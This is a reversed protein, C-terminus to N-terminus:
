KEASLEWTLHPLVSNFLRHHFNRLRKEASFFKSRIYKQVGFAIRNVRFRGVFGYRSAYSDNGCFYENTKVTIIDVHTPDQFAELHPYAPTSAIFIDSPLLAQYIENM